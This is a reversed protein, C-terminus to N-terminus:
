GHVPRDSPHTRDIGPRARTSEIVATVTDNINSVPDNDKYNNTTTGTKKMQRKRTTAPPTPKKGMVPHEDAVRRKVPM